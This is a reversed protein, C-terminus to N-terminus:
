ATESSTSTRPSSLACPVELTATTPGGPPSALSLEGDFTALRRRVGQLGGDPAVDAGGHGDDTVTVRVRGDYFRIDVSARQARAHKAVNTLLESVAFYLAAEVPAQVRGPLEVAVHVNVASDLALARVADGLGREALVPPHIGRVLQRLEVLAEASANRASALLKRAAEPDQDLLREVAGLNLGMAVWRAQAGDHLDREIRRLEAAQTDTAEARSRTLQDVRLALEASKTPALLLQSWRGHAKLLLPTAATAVVAMALGAVPTAWRPVNQLAPIFSGLYAWDTRLDFDTFLEIPLSWVWPWFYLFFGTVGLVLPVTILALAVIPDLALWGLDRWTAKDTLIWGLRQTRILNKPTDELRRGFKYKGDPRPAPPPPAPLYPKGIAV